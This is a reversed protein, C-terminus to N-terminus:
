GVITDIWILLLGFFAVLTTYFWYFTVIKTIKLRAAVTRIVISGVFLILFMKFLFFLADAILAFLGSLGLFPSLNWPMFLAIVLSTIVVIKVADTMYFMALSRGSYEAFAGYNM